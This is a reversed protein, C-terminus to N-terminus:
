ETEKKEDVNLVQEVIPELANKLNGAINQDDDLNYKLIFPRESGTSLENKETQGLYQKGLWILMGVNGKGELAVQFQKRRLSMLGPVKLSKYVESFTEGYHEKVRAELTDVSMKFLHAIELETCQISCYSEFLEINIEKRPRGM